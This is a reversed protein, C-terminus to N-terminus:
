ENIIARVTKVIEDASTKLRFLAKIEMDKNVLYSYTSHDMTYDSLQPDNVKAAYVKWGDLVSQIQDVSGTLGIIDPHFQPVYSAMSEATDREPDITIFIPKVKTAINQPLKDLVMAFKQLETPCIAPCHTFGFFLLAYDTIDDRSNFNQGAQNILEFHIGQNYGAPAMYEATQNKHNPLSMVLFGIFALIVIGWLFYRTKKM